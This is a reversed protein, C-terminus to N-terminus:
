ISTLPKRNWSIKHLKKKKEITVINFTVLLLGLRESEKGKRRGSQNKGHFINKINQILVFSLCYV